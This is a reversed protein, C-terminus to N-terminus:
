YVIVGTGSDAGSSLVCAFGYRSYTTVMLM